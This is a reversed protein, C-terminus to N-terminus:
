QKAVDTLYLVELLAIVALVVWLSIGLPGISITIEPRTAFILSIVGLAVVGVWALKRKTAHSM